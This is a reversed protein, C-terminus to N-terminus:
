ETNTLMNASHATVLGIIILTLNDQQRYIHNLKEQPIMYEDRMREKCDFGFFNTFFCKPINKHLVDIGILCTLSNFNQPKVM